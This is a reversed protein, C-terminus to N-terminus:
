AEDVLPDLLERQPHDALHLNSRAAGKVRNVDWDLNVKLVHEKEGRNVALIRHPPIARLGETFDFYDRYEESKKEDYRSERKPRPPPPPPAPQPTAEPTPPAAPPEAATS